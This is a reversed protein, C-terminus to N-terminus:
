SSLATTRRSACSSTSALASTKAPANEDFKLRRTNRLRSALPRGLSVDMLVSLNDGNGLHHNVATNRKINPYTNDSVSAVDYGFTTPKIHKARTRRYIHLLPTQERDYLLIYSVSNTYSDPRVSTASSNNSLFPFITITFVGCLLLVLTDPNPGIYVEYKM